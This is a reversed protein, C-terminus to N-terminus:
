IASVVVMSPTRVGLVVLWANLGGEPFTPEEPEHLSNESNTLKELKSGSEALPHDAVSMSPPRFSVFV